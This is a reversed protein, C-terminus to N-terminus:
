KKYAKEPIYSQPKEERMKEIAKWIHRWQIDGDKVYPDSYAGWFGEVAEMITVEKRRMAEKVLQIKSRSQNEQGSVESLLGYLAM